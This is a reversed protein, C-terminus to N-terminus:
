RIEETLRIIRIVNEKYTNSRAFDIRVKQNESSNIQEKRAAMSFVLEPLERPNGPMYLLESRNRYEAIQTSVVARGTALYEMIKHSNSAEAWYRETDYCLLMIDCARLIAPLSSHPVQGMCYVNENKKLEAAFPGVDNGILIFDCQRNRAITEMMLSRNLYPLELNGAYGVKILNRGPISELPSGEFFYDAVAHHIFHKPSRTDIRNLILNSPALVVSSNDALINERSTHHFDAAFYINFRAGFQGIDQFRYPDFSMVMDLGGTLALILKTEHGWFFRAIRWPLRNLGRYLPKYDLLILNEFPSPVLKSGASPPNLFFVTNGESALQIAYHHKSVFNHNWPESSILLIRRPSIPKV